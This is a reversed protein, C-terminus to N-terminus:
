LISVFIFLSVSKLYEIIDHEIALIYWMEYLAEEINEAIPSFIIRLKSITFLLLIIVNFNNANMFYLLDFHFLCEIYKKIHKKEQMNTVPYNDKSATLHIIDYFVIM